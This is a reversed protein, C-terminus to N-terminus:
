QKVMEIEQFEYERSPAQKKSEKKKKKKKGHLPPVGSSIDL